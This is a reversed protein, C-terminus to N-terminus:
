DLLVIDVQTFGPTTPFGGCVHFSGRGSADGCTTPLPCHPALVPRRIPQTSALETLFALSAYPPSAVCSCVRGLGGAKECAEGLELLLTATQLLSPLSGQRVALGLLAALITARSAIAGGEGEGEAKVQEYIRLLGAHLVGTIGSFTGPAEASAAHFRREGALSLAPFQALITPLQAVLRLAGAHRNTGTTHSTNATAHAQLSDLLKFFLQACLRVHVPLTALYAAETLPGALAQHMTISTLPSPSLTPSPHAPGRGGEYAEGSM